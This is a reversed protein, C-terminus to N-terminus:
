NVQSKQYPRFNKLYLSIERGFDSEKSIVTQKVTQNAKGFVTKWGNFGQATTSMSNAALEISGAEKFQIEIMLYRVVGSTGRDLFLLGGRYAIPFKVSNAWASPGKEWGGDTHVLPPQVFPIKIKETTSMSQLSVPKPLTIQAKAALGVFALLCAM